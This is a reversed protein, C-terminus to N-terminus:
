HHSQSMPLPFLVEIKVGSNNKLRLYPSSSEVMVTMKVEIEVVVMAVM